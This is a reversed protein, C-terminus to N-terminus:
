SRRPRKLVVVPAAEERKRCGGRLVAARNAPDDLGLDRELRSPMAERGRAPGPGTQLVPRRKRVLTRLWTGIM